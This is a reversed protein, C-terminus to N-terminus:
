LRGLYEDIIRVAEAVGDEVQIRRSLALAADKMKNDGIARNIAAALKEASLRRRPVPTPGVGLRAIQEGWFPQDWAYPIIISPKGALLSNALTSAGGHHVIAAMHAFLWRHPAWGIRCVTEPLEFETESWEGQIVARQGTSRLAQLIITRLAPPSPDPMSGFGFYVPPLGAAMFDVLKKEPHWGYDEPLYWYGTVRARVPWDAPRPLVTPSYGYLFPQQRWRESRYPGTLPLPPLDLTDRRWRNIFPRNFQWYSQEVLYHTIKNYAKGVRLYRPSWVAPFDATITMPQLCAIFSPVDLKEAISYGAWALPSYIVAGAGQCAQWCSNLIDGILPAALERLRMMWSYFDHSSATLRGLESGAAWSSPDGAIPLFDLGQSKVFRAFCDHTALCTEYGARRLGSGLAVYPQVDGFTGITLLVIKL